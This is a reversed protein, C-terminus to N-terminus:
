RAVRQRLAVPRVRAYKHSGTRDILRAANEQQLKCLPLRGIGTKHAEINAVIVYIVQLEKLINKLDYRTASQRTPINHGQRFHVALVKSIWVNCAGSFRILRRLEAILINDGYRETGPM